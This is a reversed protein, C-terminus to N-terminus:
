SDSDSTLNDTKSKSISNLMDVVVTLNGRLRQTIEREFSLLCLHNLREITMGRRNATHVRKVTSFLREVSVSTVPCTVLASLLQYVNPFSTPDCIDLYDILKAEDFKLRTVTVARFYRSEAEPIDLGVRKAYKGGSFDRKRLIDQATDYIDLAENNFRARLEELIIDLIENYASKLQDVPDADDGNSTTCFYDDLKMPKKRQRRTVTSDYMTIDYQEVVEAVSSQTKKFEEDSRLVEINTILASIVASVDTSTNSPNQLTSTAIASEDLIKHM